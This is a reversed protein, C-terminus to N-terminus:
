VYPTSGGIRMLYSWLLVVAFPFQLICSSLFPLENGMDKSRQLSSQSVYNESRLAFM